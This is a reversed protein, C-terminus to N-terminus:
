AGQGDPVPQPHAADPSPTAAAPAATSSQQKAAASAAPRPQRGRRARTPTKAAPPDALKPDIGASRLQSDTLGFKTGAEDRHRSFEASKAELQARLELVEAFSNALNHFCTSRENEDRLLAAATSAPDYGTLTDTM